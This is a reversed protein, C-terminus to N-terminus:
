YREILWVRRADEPMQDLMKQEERKMAVFDKTIGPSLVKELVADEELASLSEEITRPLRTVIGYEKRQEESLRSPNGIM